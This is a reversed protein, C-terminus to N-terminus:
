KELLIHELSYQKPTGYLLVAEFRVALDDRRLIYSVAGYMRRYKHATIAELPTGFRTSGRQKVEVAVYTNGDQMWLDLEGKPTRKNQALLTYGKALLYNKAVAEAWAGKM